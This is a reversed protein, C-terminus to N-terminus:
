LMLSNTDANICVKPLALYIGPRKLFSFSFLFSFRLTTKNQTLPLSTCSCSISVPAIPGAYLRLKQTVRYVHYDNPFGPDDARNNLNAPPLSRQDYPAGAPSLFMGIRIPLCGHIAPIRTHLLGTEKGFRDLYTNPLLEVLGMVPKGYVDLSFGLDGPTVDGPYIFAGSGNNLKPDWWNTLFEGPTLGGFRDYSSLESSLPLYKPLTYPGLRYDYCIYQASAPLAGASTGTCNCSGYSEDPSGPEEYHRTKM